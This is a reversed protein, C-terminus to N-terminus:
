NYISNYGREIAKYIFFHKVFVCTVIVGQESRSEWFDHDCTWWNADRYTLLKCTKNKVVGLNLIM